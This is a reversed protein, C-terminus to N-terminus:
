RSKIKRAFDPRTCRFLWSGPLLNVLFDMRNWHTAARLLAAIYRPKELTRMCYISYASSTIGQVASEGAWIGTWLASTIGSGTFPDVFAFADGAVYLSELVSPSPESFVLPGAAMWGATRSLPRLREYLCPFSAVYADFDFDFRALSEESAIGCVNTFGGEVSNIGVYAAGQFYLGIVDSQPGQYHAKFGFLRRGRPAQARRGTAVVTAGSFPGARERVVVAGLSAARRLLLNDLALRSVGFACEPLSFTKHASGVHLECRSIAAPRLALLGEAAGLRELAVFGQPSLFEGCVKHRPFRAPDFVTV